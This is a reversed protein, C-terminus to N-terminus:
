QAITEAGGVDAHSQAARADSEGSDIDNLGIWISHAGNAQAISELHAQDDASHISALHSNLHRRGCDADLDMVYPRFGKRTAEILSHYEMTCRHTDAPPVANPNGAICDFTANFHDARSWRDDSADSVFQLTMTSRFGVVPAPLRSGHHDAIKHVGPDGLPTGDWARVYDHNLETEFATFTVRPVQANDTCQLTWRCDIMNVVRRGEHDDLLVATVDPMRDASYTIQASNVMGVGNFSGPQLLNTAAGHPACEPPFQPQPDRQSLSVRACLM